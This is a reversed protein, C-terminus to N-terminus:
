SIEKSVNSETLQERSNALPDLGEAKRRRASRMEEDEVIRWQYGMKYFLSLEHSAGQKTLSNALQAESHVWRIHLGTRNQSDKLALLEINARKEAGKLTVVETALKDYVNRSDTVIVGTVLGVTDDPKRVDVQGHLMEGWQFRTLYLIDEGDVAAQSEAAGPSRCARGIKNSHWAVVTVKGVEGQLMARSGIGVLIGQTSGGDSRNQSSADVWALMCLEEAPHFKHVILEHNKQARVMNLLQNADMITSVTSQAVESLLLSVPASFHPSVQQAHWSIAGLLARLQSKERDTTTQHKDRRRQSSLPIERITDVYKAQSLKFGEECQEIQVGCQVFRDSEWDGWKFKEKIQQLIDQWGQDQKSGGFLFDDVHGSICGRLVGISAFYEAITRYWELPADVLGYCAKRLKTISGREIGMADCVEDCPICFLKDPYPRGQLFAGTVDGKHVQWSQNASLQLFLQRSLRTMVPATTARHEYSADQYGLLIARAKPKVTGDDRVKWTLLWRMGIATEKPPRLHPPIAEFAEAAIFNRVEVGKAEGFARRDEDSLRKESVEVARRRSEPMPVEIEIAADQEAWYAKETGYAREPVSTWWAATDMEEPDVGIPNPRKRRLRLRPPVEERGPDQARHWEETDPKEMSVDEYQNGGIEEVVRNYTWPTGGEPTDKALAELLEERESARRIQEPCCKLLTRFVKRTERWTAAQEERKGPDSREFDQDASEVLAEDPVQDERQILRGTVDPNRGFAHQIPSFGRIQERSNFTHIATSLAEEATMDPHDSCIKEMVQKTGKVAQECVGIHWHADAPILDLYISHRDCFEQVQQSRFAGAPDLRLAGPWGFIQVWGERLYSLCTAANPQQKSGPHPKNDNKACQVNSSSQWNWCLQKKIQNEVKKKQAEEGVLAEPKGEVMLGQDRDRKDPIGSLEFGLGQLDKRVGQSVQASNAMPCHVVKYQNVLSRPLLEPNAKTLVKNLYQTVMKRHKAIPALPLQQILQECDEYEAETIIGQLTELEQARELDRLFAVRGEFRRFCREHQLRKMVHAVCMEQVTAALVSDPACAVEMLAPREHAVLGRPKTVMTFSQLSTTENDETAGKKRPREEKLHSVEEQLTKMTELIEQLQTSAMTVRGGSYSSAAPSSAKPYGAARPSPPPEPHSQLNVAKHESVNKQYDKRSKDIEKPNNTLWGALRWSCYQPHAERIEEYSLSGHRGFGVADTPDPKAKDYVRQMAERQIQAITLNGGATYGLEKQCFEVLDAKRRSARNLGQVMQQYESKEKKDKATTSTNEGTLEEIRQLLEVRAWRKPPDEGMAELKERLERVAKLFDSLMPIDKDVTSSNEYLDKALSMVQHGTASRELKIIKRKDLKGLVMLDNAFDIQAGLRRLADISLLVPGQGKDLAHIKMQGPHGQATLAMTVTSLCRDSSSNGFGFTPRESHDVRHVDSTGKARLNCAMLCELAYTSGLSKTAGSDIVCKGQDVAESTTVTPYSSWAEETEAVDAYMVFPAEEQNALHAAAKPPNPCNAARHGVKGCALCTMGSDDRPRAGQNSSGPRSNHGRYYQRNMKVTHQKARADRLTRRAGQLVAMAREMEEQASTWMAFGEDTLTAEATMGFETDPYEEAEDDEDGVCEGLLGHQRRGQDRRRLDGEPFQARLAQSISAVSYNDGAATQILNREQQDLSADHLLIWGQVFDPLLEPLVAQKGSSNTTGWSWNSWTDPNWQDQWSGYWSWSGRSWTSEPWAATSATDTPANQTDDEDPEPQSDISTRRSWGYNSYGGSHYSGDPVARAKNGTQHPLVRQLAQQARLYIENKRALYENISEGTKRRSSAKFYRNLHETVEVIRPQGLGQRLHELLKEVGGYYSLWDAPQGTVYRKAAGTLEAAIRPGAQARKHPAVSQEYLRAAEAFETYTAPDGDRLPVGDKTRTSPATGASM